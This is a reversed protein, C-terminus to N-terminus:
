GRAQGEGAGGMYSRVIWDWQGNTKLVWEAAERVAGNGGSSATVLKAVRKVEERANAVAIPFGVRLLVELDGFDDAVYAVEGLAAGHRSALAELSALKDEIGQHVEEIGLERARRLTAMGRRGTIIFPTIGARRVLTIGMGDHAHFRKLELRRDGYYIGGDSLVGDVDMGFLKIRM